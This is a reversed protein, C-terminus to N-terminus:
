STIVVSNDHWADFVSKCVFVLLLFALMALVFSFLLRLRAHIYEIREFGAETEQLRGQRKLYAIQELTLSYAHPDGAPASKLGISRAIKWQNQSSQGGIVFSQAVTKNNHTNM